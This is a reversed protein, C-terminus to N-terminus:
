KFRLLYKVQGRVNGQVDLNGIMYFQDALRYRATLEQNGTRPDVGGIDLDFREFFSARDPAPRNPFIRRYFAQFALVAARGALADSNATLDDLTTGTALLSLIEEQPLPPESTFVTVPSFGNGSLYVGIQYNRLVSTGQIDLIPAFPTDERFYVKGTEINLTSFPLTAAFDNLRGQGDLTPHLGTGLLRVDIDVSGRALNGEVRFPEKSRVRIDFTWDRLPPNEFSVDLRDRYPKPAPKGPLQIPLIEIERFFRGKTIWVDGTAKASNLPGVAALEASARVNLTDNRIILTDKAKLKLDLQPDTITPFDVHGTVDFRGGAVEGGFREVLIRNGELVLRGQLANISPASPDKFRIGPVDLAARGSFQPEGFTGAAMMDIGATGELFRLPPFIPTLLDLSTTPLVANVMIPTTPDIQRKRIAKRVDFGASGSVKLPQLEVSKFTFVGQAGTRDLKVSLDLTAPKIGLARTSQIGKGAVVIDAVPDAMSGSVALNATLKGLLKMDRGMLTGMKALDFEKVTLHAQLPADEPIPHEKNLKLPLAFTGEVVKEGRQFVELKSASLTGPQWVVDAQVKTAGSEVRVERSQVWDKWVDLGVRTVELKLGGYKFGDAQLDFKASEKGGVWNVRLAGGLEETKGMAELLPTFVELNAVQVRANGEFTTLDPTTLRGRAEFINTGHLSITAEEVSMKPGDWAAQLRVRGDEVGQWSMDEGTVDWIGAAGTGSKYISLMARVRGNPLTLDPEAWLSALAPSDLQMDYSFADSVRVGRETPIDLSGTLMLRGGSRAVRLSDFRLHNGELSVRAEGSDGAFQRWTLAGTKMSARAALAGYFNKTNPFMRKRYEMEATIGDGHVPHLTTGTRIPYDVSVARATLSGSFDNIGVTFPGEADIGSTVLGPPHMGTIAVKGHGVNDRVALEATLSGQFLAGKVTIIRTKSNIEGREIFHDADLTANEVRVTGHTNDFQAEINEWVRWNPVRIRGVRVTGRGGKVDANINEFTLLDGNRMEVSVNANRVKIDKAYLWPMVFIDSWRIAQTRPRRRLNVKMEEPLPKVVVRADRGEISQFLSYIDGRLLANLDYRVRGEKVSVEVIDHQGKPFLRFDRANLGTFLNGNFDFTAQLRERALVKGLAFKIITRHFVVLLGLCILGGLLIRRLWRRPRKPVVPVEATESM